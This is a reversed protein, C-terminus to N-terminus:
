PDPCLTQHFRSTHHCPLPNTTQLKFLLGERTQEGDIRKEGGGLLKERVGRIVNHRRSLSSSGQRRRRAGGKHVYIPSNTLMTHLSERRHQSYVFKSHHVRIEPTTSWLFLLSKLPPITKGIHTIEQKKHDKENKTMQNNSKRTSQNYEALDHDWAENAQPIMGCQDNDTTARHEDCFDYAIPPTSM